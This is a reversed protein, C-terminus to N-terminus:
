PCRPEPFFCQGALQAGCQPTSCATTGDACTLCGGTASKCDSDSACAIGFMCCALCAPNTCSGNLSCWELGSGCASTCAPVQPECQGTQDCHKVVATEACTPDAPDCITCTDGCKKGACPIYPCHPFQYVCAHRVCDVQPCAFGGDACQVCPAGPAPCDAVSRCFGARLATQEQATSEPVQSLEDGNAAVCGIAFLPAIGFACLSIRIRDM